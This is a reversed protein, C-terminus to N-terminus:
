GAFDVGESKTIGVSELALGLLRMAQQRKSEAKATVDIHIGRLLFKLYWGIIHVCM